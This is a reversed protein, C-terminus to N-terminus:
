LEEYAEFTMRIQTQFFGEPEPNTVPAPGIVPDFVVGSVVQRNYLDRIRKGIVYNGGAGISQGTFINITVAGVVKNDSGSTGGLSLYEGEGFALLMQVWSSSPTPTYSQNYFIVPIAPSSALETNLRGEVVGRVTNLDIAAM